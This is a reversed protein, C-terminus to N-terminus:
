QTLLIENCLLKLSVLKKKSNEYFPLFLGGMKWSQDESRQTLSIHLFRATQGGTKSQLLDYKATCFLRKQRKAQTYLDTQESFASSRRPNEM